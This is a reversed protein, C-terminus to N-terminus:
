IKWGELTSTVKRIAQNGESSMFGDKQFEKYAELSLAIMSKRSILEKRVFICSVWLFKLRQM